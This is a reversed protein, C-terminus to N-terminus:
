RLLNQADEISRVVGAIAGRIKMANLFALQETTARGTSTKVEMFYARGDKQRFGSLDSRGVPLGSRIPRGDKTFFLGVNSREVYHGDNSLAIMISRMLDAESQKADTM